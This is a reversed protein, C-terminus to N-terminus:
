FKKPDLNRGGSLTQVELGHHHRQICLDPKLETTPRRRKDQNARRSAVTEAVSRPVTQGAPVPPVASPPPDPRSQPAPVSPPPPLPTSSATIGASAPPVPVSQTHLLPASSAALGASIPLALTSQPPPRLTEASASPRISTRAIPPTPAEAATAPEASAPAVAQAAQQRAKRIATYEPLTCRIRSDQGTRGSKYVAYHADLSNVGIDLRAPPTPQDWNMDDTATRARPPSPPLADRIPLPLAPPDSTPFDLPEDHSLSIWADPELVARFLSTRQLLTPDVEVGYTLDLAQRFLHFDLILPFHAHIANKADTVTYNTSSDIDFESSPVRYTWKISFDAASQAAPAPAVPAPAPTPPPLDALALPAASASSNTSASQATPVHQVAPAPIPLAASALPATPAPAAAPANLTPAIPAPAVPTPAPTPLPQVASVPPAASASSNTSASQAASASPAASASSNASAKKKGYYEDLSYVTGYTRPPTPPQDWDM